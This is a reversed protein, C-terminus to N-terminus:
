FPSKSDWMIQLKSKPRQVGDSVEVNLTRHNAKKDDDYEDVPHGVFQCVKQVGKSRWINMSKWVLKQKWFWSFMQLLVIVLIGGCMLHTAVSYRTFHSHRLYVNSFLVVETVICMLLADDLLLASVNLMQHLFQLIRCNSYINVSVIFVNNGTTFKKFHTGAGRPLQCDLQHISPKIYSRGNTM